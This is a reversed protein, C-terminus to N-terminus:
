RYVFLGKGKVPTASGAPSARECGGKWEFVGCAMQWSSVPLCSQVGVRDPLLVQEGMCLREGSM